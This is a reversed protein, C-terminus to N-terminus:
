LANFTYHNILRNLRLEVSFHRNTTKKTNSTSFKYIFLEYENILLLVGVNLEEVIQKECEFSENERYHM